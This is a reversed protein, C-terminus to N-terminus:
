ASYYIRIRVRYILCNDVGHLGLRECDHLTLYIALRILRPSLRVIVFLIPSLAGKLEIVTGPANCSCSTVFRKLVKHQVM